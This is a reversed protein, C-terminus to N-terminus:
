LEVNLPRIVFTSYFVMVADIRGCTKSTFWHELFFGRNRSVCNNSEPELSHSTSLAVVWGRRLDKIEVRKQMLNKESKALEAEQSKRGFSVKTHPFGPTFNLQSYVKQCTGFLRIVM